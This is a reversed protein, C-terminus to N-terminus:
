KINKLTLLALLPEPGYFCYQILRTLYRSYSL